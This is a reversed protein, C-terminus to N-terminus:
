QHGKPAHATLRGCKPCHLQFKHRFGYTMSNTFALRDWEEASLSYAGVELRTKPNTFEPGVLVDGFHDLCTATLRM